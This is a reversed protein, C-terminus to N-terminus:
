FRVQLALRWARLPMPYYQTSEYYTDFLNNVTLKPTVIVHGLNIRYSLDLDHILYDPTFYSEDASTFRIDTYHLRYNFRLQKYSLTYRANWNNRPVYPLQYGETQAIDAKNVSHTHTFNCAIEHYTSGWIAYAEALLEIGMSRVANFNRAEWVASNNKPMWAIWDKIDMWFFTPEVKLGGNPRDLRYAVTADASWGKEPRLNPNGGPEWFRENLTPYRYNYGQNARLNLGQTLAYDIGISYTNALHKNNSAIMWQLSTRLKDSPTYAIQINNHFSSEKRAGDLLSSAKAQDYRYEINDTFALQSNLAYRYAGKLLLSHTRNHTHRTPSNEFIRTYDYKNCLHVAWLDLTHAQKEFTYQVFSRIDHTAQKERPTAQIYIASPLNRDDHQWWSTARIRHHNNITYFFEQMLGLQAYEAHKRKEKFPTTSYQTNLYTYDNDSQQYYARTKTVFSGKGWQLAGGGTLTNNSGYEGLLLIHTITDNLFRNGLSISGGLAGATHESYGNGHHLAVQETFFSPIQSFDFSGLMPSNIPIGNWNVATHSSSTGRFSSTARAGQGLSKIYLSSNESLLEALSRSQNNM